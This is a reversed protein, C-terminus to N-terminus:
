RRRGGGGGGRGGRRRRRALVPRLLRRRVDGRRRQGHPSSPTGAELARGRRSPCPPTPSTNSPQGPRLIPRLSFPFGLSNSIRLTPVPRPDRRACSKVQHLTLLKVCLERYNENKETPDVEAAPAPSHLNCLLARVTSDHM